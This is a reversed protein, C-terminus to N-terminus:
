LQLEANCSGCLKETKASEMAHKLEVTNLAVFRAHHRKPFREWIPMGNTQTAM